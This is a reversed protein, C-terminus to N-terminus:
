FLGRILLMIRKFMNPSKELKQIRLKLENFNSELNDIKAILEEIKPAINAGVVYLIKEDTIKPKDQKIINQSTMVRM